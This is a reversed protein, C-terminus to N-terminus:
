PSKGLINEESSSFRCVTIITSFTGKKKKIVPILLYHIM